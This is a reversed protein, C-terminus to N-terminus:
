NIRKPKGLTNFSQVIHKIDKENM